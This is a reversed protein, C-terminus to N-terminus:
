NEKMRKDMLKLAENISTKCIHKINLTDKDFIPFMIEHRRYPLKCFNLSTKSSFASKVTILFDMLTSTENSVIHHDILNGSYTASDDNIYQIIIKIINKIVDDIFTFYRAQEGCTLEIQAESKHIDSITKSLFKYDKDGDGFIQHVVINIFNFNSNNKELLRAKTKFIKKSESYKNVTREACSLFTDINIFDIDNQNQLIRSIIFIPFDINVDSISNEEYSTAFHIVMDIQNNNLFEELNHEGYISSVNKSFQCSFSKRFYLVFDFKIDFNRSIIEQIVRSGLYGSVGTLLIKKM